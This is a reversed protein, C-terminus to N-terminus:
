RAAAGAYARARSSRWTVPATATGRWREPNAVAHLAAALGIMLWLQKEFQGSQFSYAALLGILAVLQGRALIDLERDAKRGFTRAAKLGTVIVAVILALLLLVGVAGYDALVNLYTSHAVYGQAILDSRPLSINQITYAPEAIPFNGAGVGAVPHDHAVHLAATWLNLRSGEGETFQGHSPPRAVYFAGVCVMLTAAAGWITLRAPGALLVSALLAAALAVGAGQSDTHVITLAFLPLLALCLWRVPRGRLAV